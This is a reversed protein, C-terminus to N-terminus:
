DFSMAKAFNGWANHLECGKKNKSLGTVKTSGKGRLWGKFNNIGKRAHGKEHFDNPENEQHKRV